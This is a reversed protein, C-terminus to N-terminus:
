SPPKKLWWMGWKKSIPKQTKTKSRPKLNTITETYGSNLVTAHQPLHPWRREYKTPQKKNSGDSKDKHM